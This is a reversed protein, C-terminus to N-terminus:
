GGSVETCDLRYAYAIGQVQFPELAVVQWGRTGIRIEDGKIPDVDLGTSPVYFTATVRDDSSAATYRSSEDVPGDVQVTIDEYESDVEGGSTYTRVTYHRLTASQGFLAATAVELAKFDDAITM